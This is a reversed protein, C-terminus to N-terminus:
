ATHDIKVAKRNTFMFESLRRLIETKGAGNRDRVGPLHSVRGTYAEWCSKGDASVGKWLRTNRRMAMNRSAPLNVVRPKKAVPRRNLYGM